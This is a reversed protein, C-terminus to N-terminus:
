SALSDEKISAVTEDGHECCGVVLEQGVDPLDLGCM